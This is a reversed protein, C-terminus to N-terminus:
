YIILVSLSEASLGSSAGGAENGLAVALAGGLAADWGLNVGFEGNTISTGWTGIGTNDGGALGISLGLGKGFSFGVSLSIGISLLFDFEVLTIGLGFWLLDLEDLAFELGTGVLAVGDVVPGLFLETHFVNPGSSVALSLSASSEVARSKGEISDALGGSSLYLKRVRSLLLVLVLLSLVDLASGGLLTIEEEPGLVSVAFGSDLVDTDELLLSVEKIGWVGTSLDANLLDPGLRAGQLDAWRGDSEPLSHNLFYSSRVSEWTYSDKDKAKRDRRPM